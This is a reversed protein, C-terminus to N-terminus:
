GHNNEQKVIPQTPVHHFQYPANRRRYLITTADSIQDLYKCESAYSQLSRMAQAAKKADDIIFRLEDSTKNIYTDLNCPM